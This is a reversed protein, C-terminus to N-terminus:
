KKAPEVIGQRAELDTDSMSPPRDAEASGWAPNPRDGMVFAIEGAALLEDHGVWARTLPRGGLTASQVYRNAPSAGAARVVLRRRDGLDLTAKTFLPSGIVYFAGAPNVPYLGLASMVYWASMQGCDENGALGEPTDDYLTDLVQRVREQTKWPVGAWAYLYAVHHSPENGHAYQGILGTVDPPLGAAALDLPTTFTADLRQELGRRGGLLRVYGAPDHQAAFTYQWANGETYDQWQKSVGYRVPDFPGAFRGDALRPRAFRTEPDLLNAYSAARKLFAQADDERGLARALVAIAYDDYSYELTKAVSEGERDSPVYGLRAYDGLGRYDAKLAQRKMLRLAEGADFDRIGKRWAEAIVSAAHYGIMCHTEGNALPWIPLVGDPHQQAMAILSRVLDRARGRQVLAYLPHATRYTDWLSFTSHYHFGDARHVQGDLGRYGGDADDFLTPALFAHYLATAFTRRQKTTGGELSVVALAKRWAARAADRARDFEERPAERELNRRAGEVSTPSIGVRVLVSEGATTRYDVWAKLRTGRAERLGPRREQGVLLGFGAFPKSFRAYFYVHRDRAWRTVRRWGVITREDVIRLESDLIGGGEGQVMHALDLVVHAADSAPFSYRHLGVRETATLEVRVGNALKVAYAGPATTEDAHSFRSRYGDEPRERTGPELKLEGVTPMLLVDLLDAAGTGSLHTHSFGMISQDSRHYGSCWDWGSDHTDPSLQVMGFPVSAGPYTHGHGGTGITPDVSVILEDVTPPVASRRAGAELTRGVLACCVVALALAASEQNKM